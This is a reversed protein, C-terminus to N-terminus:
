VAGLRASAGGSASAGESTGRGEPHRDGARVPVRRHGRPGRILLWRHLCSPERGSTRLRRPPAPLRPSTNYFGFGGAEANLIPFVNEVKGKLNAARKLVADKTPALVCDFRRLVTLPLIGKGCDSQKYDGRLLDAVSWIFAAHNEVQGEAM